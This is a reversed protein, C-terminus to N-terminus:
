SHAHETLEDRNAAPLCSGEKGLTCTTEMQSVGDVSAAMVFVQHDAALTAASVFVGKVM